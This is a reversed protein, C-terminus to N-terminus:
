GFEKYLVMDQPRPTLFKRAKQFLLGSLTIFECANMCSRLHAADMTLLSHLTDTKPTVQYPVPPMYPFSFGALGNSADVGVIAQSSFLFACTKQLETRGHIQAHLEEQLRHLYRVNALHSGSNVYLSKDTSHILGPLFFLVNRRTTTV